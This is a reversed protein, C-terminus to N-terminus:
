IKEINRDEHSLISHFVKREDESLKKLREMSYYYLVYPAPMGGYQPQYWQGLYVHSYVQAYVPSPNRYLYSLVSNVERYKDAPNHDPYDFLIGFKLVKTPDNEITYVEGDAGDGLYIDIHNPLKEPCNQRCLKLAQM